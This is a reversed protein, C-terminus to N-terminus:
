SVQLLLPRITDVETALPVETYVNKHIYLTIHKIPKERLHLQINM